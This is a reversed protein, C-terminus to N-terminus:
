WVVKEGSGLHSRMGKAPPQAQTELCVSIVVSCGRRVQRLNKRGEEIGGQGTDRKGVGAPGCM